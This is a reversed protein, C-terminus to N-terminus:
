FSFPSSANPVLRFIRELEKAAVRGNVREVMWHKAVARVFRALRSGAPGVGRNFGFRPYPQTQPFNCGGYTRVLLTEVNGGVVEFIKGALGEDLASNILVNYIHGNRHRNVCCNEHAYQDRDQNLSAAVAPWGPGTAYPEALPTDHKSEDTAIFHPPSCDLQLSLRCLRPLNSGIHRYLAVEASDGRTRKLPISLDTLGPFSLTLVSLGEFTLYNQLNRIAELAELGKIPILSLRELRLNDFSFIQVAHDWATLQFGRLSPLGSLFATISLFYGSRSSMTVEETFKPVECTLSLTTLLHLNTNSLSAIQERSVPDKLYLTRLLSLDIMNDWKEIRGRGFISADSDKDVGSDIMLYSLHGKDVPVARSNEREEQNFFKTPNWPMAPARFSGVIHFNPDGPLAHLTGKEVNWSHEM